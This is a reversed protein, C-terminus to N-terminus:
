DVRENFFDLRRLQTRTIARSPQVDKSFRFANIEDTILRFFICRLQKLIM